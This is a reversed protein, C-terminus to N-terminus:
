YKYFTRRFSTLLNSCKPKSDNTDFYSTSNCNCTKSNGNAQCTLGLDIDCDSNSNCSIGEKRKM